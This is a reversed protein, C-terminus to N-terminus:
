DNRLHPYRKLTQRQLERAELVVAHIFRLLSILIM